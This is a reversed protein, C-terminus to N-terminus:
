GYSYYFEPNDLLICKIIEQLRNKPIGHIEIYKENDIIATKITTYVNKEIVSLKQFYYANRM